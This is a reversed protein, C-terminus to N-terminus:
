IEGRRFIRRPPVFPKAAYETITRVANSAATASDSHGLHEIAAVLGVKPDSGAADAHRGQEYRISPSGHEAPLVMGLQWWNKVMSGIREFYDRGRVDRLWDSRNTFHKLAQLPPDKGDKTLDLFRRYSAESLVQDPVRAGWFSPMSLFTTPEYDAASNCSSGDTQWPVGLFRTLAGAAIGDYPGGPGICVDPTLVAGFDQRAPGDGDLVKLRYAGAWVRPLRMTWTLEIGPHFPGGLCDHLPARELHEVQEAPSLKDFAPIPPPAGPWDADFNGKSWRELHAYQTANVPLYYRPDNPADGYLDGYNQPLLPLEAGGGVNPARFLRLVSTRWSLNAASKDNLRVVVAPDGADLPSGKGSIVFLGHNIWQQGSLRAFIPWVDRTFSTRDPPPLWKQAYFTERVTDDMTIVGFVGPAFNPPTSVVYGPEANMSTGDAFTVTARVPGDAVDDHWGENNAFTLPNLGPRFPASSGRGGLFLLRGEADTRLEGLYVPRNWFTGDGFCYELGSIGTGEVSIATPVIDLRPRRRSGPWGANRRPADKAAGPGLDMATQFQYWGAKLNAVSVHWRLHTTKTATVEAFSGNAFEAYVRFRAAHRKIAGDSTRFDDPRAGGGAPLTPVGGIVEPAILYDEAFPLKPDFANGVRAIGLPPYVRLAVISKPDIGAESM